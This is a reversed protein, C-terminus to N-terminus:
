INYMRYNQTWVMLFDGEMTYNHKSLELLALRHSLLVTLRRVLLLAELVGPLLLALSDVLLNALLDPAM